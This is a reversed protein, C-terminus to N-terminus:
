SLGGFMTYKIDLYEEIGYKSGERGLGSQKVGGFPAVENSIASQNIGVMGYELAESMRWARGLDRTYCYSALGFETDNALEVAEHEHDFKFIVALPAFTEEKAVRMTPNANTILTPEFFLEGQESGKGGLVLEGGKGLADTIHESVKNVANQNILPGITTGAELGNGVKLQQMQAKFLSVFEDHIGSQVLFRNTCICTQGANRFKSFMAGKVAEKVDADDFVIFPANGGLELSVKKLTNASQEYLLRGVPTSGTFSLKKVTQSDFFAQAIEKADGTIVSIVGEPVGAEGALKALALATFPTEPAPKIICTCGVALAPAVKRTIMASPFNWPTIVGVVGVPQKTVMIRTGDMPSPIIDGYVRKGEESFWEVFSASYLIEGKAEALPKGQESTLILALEDIHAIILEHWKKLILSREKASKRAWLRQATDALAIARQTEAKGMKPVSGIVALTAPNTIDITDGNDADAWQGALYAKQCFLPSNQLNTM